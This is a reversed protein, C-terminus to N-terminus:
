PSAGRGPAKNGLTRAAESSAQLVCDGIRAFAHVILMLALAGRGHESKGGIYSGLEEFAKHRLKELEDFSARQKSLLAADGFAPSRASESLMNQALDAMASVSRLSSPLPATLECLEKTQTVMELLEDAARKMWLGTKLACTVFRVEDLGLQGTSLLDICLTDLGLCIEHAKCNEARIQGALERDLDMLSIVCATFLSEVESGIAALQDQLVQLESTVAARDDSQENM